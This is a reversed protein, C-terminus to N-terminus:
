PLAPVAERIRVKRPTQTGDDFLPIRQYSKPSDVETKQYGGGSPVLALHNLVVWRRVEPESVVCFAEGTRFNRIAEPDMNFERKLFVNGLGTPTMQKGFFSQKEETQYSESVVKTTGGVHACAEVSDNSRQRLFININMNDMLKDFFGKGQENLDGSLSHHALTLVFGSSRCQAVFDIFYDYIFADVEDVYCPFFKRAMPETQTDFYDSTYALDKLIMKGLREATETLGRKNLQLYIIENNQYARIFNIDPNVTNFLGGFESNILLNIDTSFGRLDKLNREFDNRFDRLKRVVLPDKAFKLLRDTAEKKTLLYDIDEFTCRMGADFVARMINQTALESTKRYYPESWLISGILKDKVQTATGNILPSYTNSLEPHALSFFRFDKERHLARAFEYLIHLTRIDGKGDLFVLGRGREMDHYVMSELFSTKGSGSSGVVHTHKRRGEEEILVPRGSELNTGLYFFKDNKRAERRGREHNKPTVKKKRKEDKTFLRELAM